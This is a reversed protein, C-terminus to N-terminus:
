TRVRQDQVPRQPPAPRMAHLSLHSDQSVPQLTLSSLLVILGSSRLLLLFNRHLGQLVLSLDLSLNMDLLFGGPPSFVSIVRKQSSSLNSIWAMLSLVLLHRM